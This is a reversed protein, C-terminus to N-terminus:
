GLVFVAGAFLPILLNDDLWGKERLGPFLAPLLEGATAAFAGLLPQGLLFSIATAAVFFALTGEVTKGALLELRGYRRGVLTSLSDGIALILGAATAAPLPFLLFAIGCGMYFWFAGRFPPGPREYRLLLPRLRRDLWGVLRRLPPQPRQLYLSYLLFLFAIGFFLLLREIPLLLQAVLIFLIGLLHIAQRSRENM